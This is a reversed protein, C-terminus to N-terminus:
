RGNRGIKSLQESALKEAKAKEGELRGERGLAVAAPNKGSYEQQKEEADGTTLDVIARPLQNTDRPRQPNSM